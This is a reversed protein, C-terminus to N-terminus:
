PMMGTVVVILAAIAGLVVAAVLLGGLMEVGGDEPHGLESCAEAPEPQGDRRVGALFAARHAAVIATETDTM